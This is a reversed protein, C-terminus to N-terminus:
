LRYEPLKNSAGGSLLAEIYNFLTFIGDARLPFTPNEMFSRLINSIKGTSIDKISDGCKEERGGIDGACVAYLM